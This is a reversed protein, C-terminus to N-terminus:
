PVVSSATNNGTIKNAIYGGLISAGVTTGVSIATTILTSTVVHTAVGTATSAAAHGATNTAAQTAAHGASSAGNANAKAQVKAKGSQSGNQGNQVQFRIASNAAVTVPHLFGSIAVSGRRVSVYTLGSPLRLVRYLAAARPMIMHAPLAVRVRGSVYLYGRQLSLRGVEVRALTRAGFQVSGAPLNLRASGASATRLLDGPRAVLGAAAPAANLYAGNASALVMGPTLGFGFPAAIAVTMLIAIAQIVPRTIRM